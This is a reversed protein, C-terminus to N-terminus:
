SAIKTFKVNAQEITFSGDLNTKNKMDLFTTEITNIAERRLKGPCQPCQFLTRSDQIYVIPINLSVLRNFTEQTLTLGKCLLIHGRMNYTNKGLRAGPSLSKTIAVRM